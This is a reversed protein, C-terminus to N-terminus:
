PKKFYLFLIIVYVILMATVLGMAEVIDSNKYDHSQNILFYFPWSLYAIVGTWIYFKIGKM